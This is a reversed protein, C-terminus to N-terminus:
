TPDKTVTCLSESHRTFETTATSQGLQALAHPIKTVQGPISGADVVCCPPNKVM